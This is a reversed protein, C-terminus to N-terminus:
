KKYLSNCIKETAKLYKPEVYKIRLMDVFACVAYIILITVVCFLPFSKKFYWFSDVHLLDNWLFERVIGSDSILYVSFASKALENIVKNIRSDIKEFLKFINVSCVPVVLAFYATRCIALILKANMGETLFAYGYVYYLATGLIWFLGSLGIYICQSINKNTLVKKCFVGVIYFFVGRYLSAYSAEVFYAATYCFLWALTVLRVFQKVNLKRLYYNLCPSVLMIIVYVTVFWWAGSGVPELFTKLLTNMPVRSGAVSSFGAVRLFFYILTISWGYFVTELVVKRVSMKDKDIQFYGTLMFFIGVGIGGGPILASTVVKNLIPGTKWIKFAMDTDLQHQVGHSALHSAVIMLMSIIRLLEFNSQRMKKMAM